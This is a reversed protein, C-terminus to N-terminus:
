GGPTRAVEAVNKAARAAIAPSKARIGHMLVSKIQRLARAHASPTNLDLQLVQALSYSNSFYIFSLGIVNILLHPIDLDHRFEGTAVGDYVIERVRHVLPLKTLLGEPFHKGNELNGWLVLRTFEPNDRLFVFYGEVLATLKESPSKESEIAQIEIGEIRRYVELLVARYLRDKSGFYYYPLRKSLHAARAVDDVSVGHFGRRAFLRIAIELLRQRTKDRNVTARRLKKAARANAKKPKAAVPTPM